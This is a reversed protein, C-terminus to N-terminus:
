TAVNTSTVQSLYLQELERLADIDPAVNVSFNATRTAYGTNQYNHRIADIIWGVANDIHHKQNFLLDSAKKIKNIDNDAVKLISRIDKKSLNLPKLLEIIEVVDGTTTDINTTQTTTQTNTQVNKNKQNAINTCVHTCKQEPESGEDINKAYDPDKSSIDSITTQPYTLEILKAPILELFMVNHCVVGESVKITRLHRKIVGLEELLLLSYKAQRKTINFKQMIQEYSRQLYDDDKFRKQYKTILGSEDRYIKPRYFYVIDALILISLPNPKGTTSVITSYWTEPIINGTFDLKAVQDVIPNGTTIDISINM